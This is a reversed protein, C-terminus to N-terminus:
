RVYDPTRTALVIAVKVDRETANLPFELERVGYPCLFKLAHCISDRKRREVVNPARVGVSVAIREIHERTMFSDRDSISM